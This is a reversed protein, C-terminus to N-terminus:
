PWPCQSIVGSSRATQSTGVGAAIADPVGALDSLSFTALATTGNVTATVTFAGPTTGATLTPSTAVGVSGAIATATSGGGLFSAGAGNTTVVSYVVTTGAVADGYADLVNVALPQSFASGVHASQHNGSSIGLSSVTGVTSNTEQFGVSYTTAGSGEVTAEVSFSGSVQNATLTPATGIGNSGTPVTVTIVSGPFSGSAGTAPAVFTVDVNAIPCGGTDVVEAQLPSSFTDGVKAM